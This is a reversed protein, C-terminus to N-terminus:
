AHNAVYSSASLEGAAQSAAAHQNIGGYGGGTGGYAGGASGYGFNGAAGGYGGGGPAVAAGRKVRVVSVDDESYDEDVELPFANAVALGVFSTM